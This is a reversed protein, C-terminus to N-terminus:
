REHFNLVFGNYPETWYGKDNMLDYEAPKSYNDFEGAYLSSGLSIAIAWDFPGGEWCVSWGSGWGREETEEPTWLAVEISPTQGQAKARECIWAYFKKAGQEPTM